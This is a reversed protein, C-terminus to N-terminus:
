FELTYYLWIRVQETPHKEGSRALVATKSLTTEDTLKEMPNIKSKTICSRILEASMGNAFCKALRCSQCKHRTGITLECQNNNNCRM